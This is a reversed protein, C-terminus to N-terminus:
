RGLPTYSILRTGAWIDHWYQGQPAFRSLLAWVAVWGLVIAIAGGASLSFISSTILPPIFWLAEGSRIFVDDIRRRVDKYIWSDPDLDAM